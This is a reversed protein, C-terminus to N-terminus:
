LLVTKMIIKGQVYHTLCLNITRFQEQMCFGLISFYVLQIELGM